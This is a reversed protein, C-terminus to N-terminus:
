GQGGVGPGSEEGGGNRTPTPAPPNAPRKFARCACRPPPTHPPPPGAPPPHRGSPPVFSPSGSRMLSMPRSVVWPSDRNWAWYLFRERIHTGRLTLPLVMPTSFALLLVEPSGKVSCSMARKVMM